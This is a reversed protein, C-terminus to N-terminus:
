KVCLMKKAIRADPAELVYFYVGSGVGEGRENTGDWGAEYRGPERHRDELVKVLAGSVDYVKLQVRGATALEYRIITSPNFPNPYNQRLVTETPLAPLGEGYSDVFSGSGVLLEFRADEQTV